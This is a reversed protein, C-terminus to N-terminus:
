SLGICKRIGFRWKSRAAVRVIGRGCFFSAVISRNSGQWPEKLLRDARTLPRPAQQSLDTVEKAVETALNGPESGCYHNDLQFLSAESERTDDIAQSYASIPRQKSWKQAQREGFGALRIHDNATFLAATLAASNAISNSSFDSM